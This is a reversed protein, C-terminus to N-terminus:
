LFVKEIIEHKFLVGTGLMKGNCLEWAAKLLDRVSSISRSGGGGDLSTFFARAISQDEPDSADLSIIIAPWLLTMTTFGSKTLQNLLYLGPRSSQQNDAHFQRARPGRLKILLIHFAHTFLCHAVSTQVELSSLTEQEGNRENPLELSLLTLYDNFKAVENELRDLEMLWQTNLPALRVLTSLKFVLNFVQPTLGIWLSHQWLGSSAQSSTWINVPGDLCHYEKPEDISLPRFINIVAVRYILSSLLLLQHTTTPPFHNFRRLFVTRISKVHADSPIQQAGGYREFIHLLVVTCAAWEDPIDSSCIHRCLGRIAKTHCQLAIQAWHGDPVRQTLLIAGLALWAHMYSPSESLTPLVPVLISYYDDFYAGHIARNALRVLEWACSEPVGITGHLGLVARLSPLVSPIASPSSCAPPENYAPHKIRTEPDLDCQHTNTSLQKAVLQPWRCISRGQRM